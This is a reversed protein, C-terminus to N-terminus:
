LGTFTRRVKDARLLAAFRPVAVYLISLYLFITGTLCSFLQFCHLVEESGNSIPSFLLQRLCQAIIGLAFLISTITVIRWKALGVGPGLCQWRRNPSSEAQEGSLEVFPIAWHGTYTSSFM